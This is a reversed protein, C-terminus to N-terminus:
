DLEVNFDLTRIAFSLQRPDSAGQDAPRYNGAHLSLALENVGARLSLPIKVPVDPYIPVATAWDDALEVTLQGEALGDSQYFFAPTIQLTISMPRAASIRVVAPSAAWRWSDERDYWNNALTILLPQPPIQDLPPVAYAVLLDDEYAPEQDEFFKSIFARAQEEAWSGPQYAPDGSHPKHWIVYRYGNAALDYLTNDACSVPQGNVTVDPTSKIEPILCPFVPHIRYTRSLYGNAIGKGHSLQLIQYRSSYDPVAYEPNGKIPLDFLGYMEEDQAIQGYFPSVAPMAGQIWPRPWIELLLLAMALLTLPIAARPFRRSLWDLGFAAGIALGISGVFMLRGPTRLFELGPLATLLVYPLIIELGYETFQRRGFLKLSPGLALVAMILSFLLWPYAKKQRGILAVLSLLLGTGTLYIWTEVSNNVLNFRSIAQLAGAGLLRSNPPPLFLEVFDPQYYSSAQNMDILFDPDRSARAIILLLPGVLVICSVALLALRRGLEDRSEKEARFLFVVGFFVVSIFALVFLLGHQLLSLLLFLAVIVAWWRSREPTMARHLAWLALPLLGLFALDLRGENVALHIPVVIFFTGAFLASGLRSGLERSLLYMAYGSLAQGFLMLGNFAAVPGWSWFPLAMLGNLPGTSMILTTIGAPYYLQQASYLPERGLVWEKLHSLIWIYHRVDDNDGATLTSFDRVVPWSLLLVLGFYFLLPLVHNVILRRPERGTLFGPIKLHREQSM